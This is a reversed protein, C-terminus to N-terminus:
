LCHHLVVGYEAIKHVISYHFLNVNEPSFAIINKYYQQM